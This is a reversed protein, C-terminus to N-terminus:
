QFVSNYKELVCKYDMELDYIPNLNTQNLSALGHNDTKFQKHWSSKTTVIVPEKIESTFQDATIGIILSGNQLWAHTQLSKKEEIWREGCM